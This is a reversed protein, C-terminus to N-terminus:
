WPSFPTEDNKRGYGTDVSEPKMMAHPQQAQIGMSAAPDWNGASYAPMNNSPYTGPNVDYGGGGGFLSQLAKAGSQIQEGASAFPVQADRALGAMQNGATAYQGAAGQRYKQELGLTDQRAGVNFRQLADLAAAKQQELQQQQQGARSALVNAELRRQEAAAAAQGTAGALASYDGQAGSLQAALEAGSGAQGRQQYDQMIAKMAANRMAGSRRTAEDLAVRSQVDLGTGSGREILNKLADMSYGRAEPDMDQYASKDTLGLFELAKDAQYGKGGQLEAIGKQTLAAARKQQQRQKHAGYLNLGTNALQAGAAILPLM